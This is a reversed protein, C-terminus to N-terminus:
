VFPREISPSPQSFFVPGGETIYMDDELRIGFEGPIAIMPEDTFCMGVAIPATNGKVLYTWEHGDLGIGHGTRHPLGPVKYGPGFGGDTIVKRAAADVQEHPVGPKAAAFAAAQAKKELDWVQRQRATPTGFVVSRSIDSRYGEVNCGGDMLVVDGDRLTRPKISGHPLATAEGFNAGISGEVGLARHAATANAAFEAKTMGERLTVLVAKYAAVTIDNARQMLAIEAPTKISRCPVTVPDALVYELAPAAKRIGDFLFFRVREEMAVRGTVIGRDKFIQAVKAGPDEDEEWARVDTGLRILERARGEEFAPCIWALEGRAPLIAAFARESGGWRVGTFYYLGTGSELYLADIKREAMLRRAREIRAKREDDTIPVIGDTMRRLVRISEPTEPQAAAVPAQAEPPRSCSVLATGAAAAASAQLFRRRPLKM